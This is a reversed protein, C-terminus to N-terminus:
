DTNESQWCITFFIQKTTKQASISCCNEGVNALLSSVDHTNRECLSFLISLSNSEDFDKNSNILTASCLKLAREQQHSEARACPNCFCVHRQYLSWKIQEIDARDKSNKKTISRLTNIAKTNYLSPINSFTVVCLVWCNESKELDFTPVWNFAACACYSSFNLGIAKACVLQNRVIWDNSNWSM